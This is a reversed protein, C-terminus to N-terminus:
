KELITILFIIHHRVCIYFVITGRHFVNHGLYPIYCNKNIWTGTIGLLHGCLIYYYLFLPSSYYSCQYMIHEKAKEAKIAPYPRWFLIFFCSDPPLGAGFVLYSFFFSFPLPFFFLSLSSLNHLKNTWPLEHMQSSLNKHLFFIGLFDLLLWHWFFDLCQSKSTTQIRWFYRSKHKIYSYFPFCSM